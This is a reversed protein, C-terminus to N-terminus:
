CRVVSALLTEAKLRLRKDTQTQMKRGWVCGRTSSNVAFMLARRGLRAPTPKHTEDDALTLRHRLFFDQLGYERPDLMRSVSVQTNATASDLCSVVSNWPDSEKREIVDFNTRIIDKNIFLNRDHGSPFFFNPRRQRSAYAYPDLGHAPDNKM